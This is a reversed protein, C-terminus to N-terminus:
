SEIPRLSEIKERIDNIKEDTENCSLAMMKLLEAMEERDIMKNNIQSVLNSLDSTYIEFRDLLSEYLSNSLADVLKYTYQFKINEQYDKFHSIISKETERKM